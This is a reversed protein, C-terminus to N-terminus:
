AEYINARERLIKSNITSIADQLASHFSGSGQLSSKKYAIEGAISMSLLSTVTSDFINNPSVGCFAGILSSCMCGTGTLKSLMSNGNNIHITKDISSIIDIKGTIAIICNLKNALTKSILNVDKQLDEQASDVGLANSDYGALFCMESINGKIVSFNVEELLRSIFKNRFKSISCGVPDLIVPISHTNAIKGASLMSIATADNLTGINLVLSSSIKVIDKIDELYDAMIPSGGIALTINACDNTTVYNTIHHVLPKKRRVQEILSFYRKEM